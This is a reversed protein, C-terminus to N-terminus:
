HTPSLHRGASLWGKDKTLSDRCYTHLIRPKMPLGQCLQLGPAWPEEIRDQFQSKDKIGTKRSANVIANGEQWSYVEM